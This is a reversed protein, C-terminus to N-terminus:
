NEQLLFGIDTILQDVEDTLTGDYFGRIRGKKDVLAFNQTHIFDEHGGDGEDANLLYGTRAQRYLDAKEGTLFIWRSTNANLDLAYKKLQEPSDTEPDVTHSLIMVQPNDSYAKYVRDLQKSMVPCITQCTTFFFDAVYVKNKVVSQNVSRGDQDIFRFAPISHYLTDIQEVNNVMSTDLRHNGLIPLVKFVEKKQNTFIFVLCFFGLALLIFIFPLFRKM